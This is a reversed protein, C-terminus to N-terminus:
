STLLHAETGMKGADGREIGSLFSVSHEETLINFERESHLGPQHHVCAMVGLKLSVVGVGRERKRGRDGPGRREGERRRSGREGKGHGGEEGEWEGRVEQGEGGERPEIEMERTM